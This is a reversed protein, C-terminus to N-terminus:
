GLAFLLEYPLIDQHVRSAFIEVYTKSQLGDHILIHIQRVIGNRVSHRQASHLSGMGDAGHSLDLQDGVRFLGVGAEEPTRSVTYHTDRLRELHRWMDRFSCWAV